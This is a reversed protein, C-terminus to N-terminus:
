YTRRVVTVLAAIPIIFPLAFSFWVGLSYTVQRYKLVNNPKLLVESLPGLFYCINAALMFALYGIAQFAITLATEETDPFRDAFSWALALYALFALMGAAALAVNYRLRQSNWWQMATM